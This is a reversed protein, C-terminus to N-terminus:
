QRGLYHMDKQFSIHFYQFISHKEEPVPVVTIISTSVHVYSEANKNNLRIIINRIFSMSFDTWRDVQLCSFGGMTRFGHATM